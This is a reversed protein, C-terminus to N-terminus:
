WFTSLGPLGALARDATVLPAEELISQAALLRDFPDRHDWSLSGGLAAHAHTVALPTVKLQDVVTHMDALLPEAEPLKGLRAKTAMEWVSVASVLVTVDSQNLLARATPSLQAPERVAWLLVHTDLLIRVTSM